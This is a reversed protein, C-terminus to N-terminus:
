KKSSIFHLSKPTFIRYSVSAHPFRGNGRRGESYEKVRILRMTYIMCFLAEEIIAKEDFTLPFAWMQYM